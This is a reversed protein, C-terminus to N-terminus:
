AYHSLEGIAPLWERVTVLDIVGAEAFPDDQLVRHLTEADPAQLILMAEESGMPGAVILKVDDKEASGDLAALWARHSPRVEDRRAASDNAYVYDTRFVSM